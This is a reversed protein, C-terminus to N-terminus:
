IVSLIQNRIINSGSCAQVPAWLFKNFGFRSSDSSTSTTRHQYPDSCRHCEESRRRGGNKRQHWEESRKRGGGWPQQDPDGEYRCPKRELASGAGTSVDLLYITNIFFIRFFQFVFLVILFILLCTFFFSILFDLYM